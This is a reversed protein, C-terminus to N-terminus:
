TRSKEAEVKYARNPRPLKAGTDRLWASLRANLQEVKEAMKKSLNKTESIDDELNFLEFTNGEYRRILKWCGNRVISYPVIEDRYHPFHWFIADRGLKATGNSKLHDVLSLGDIQRDASPKVGALECITPLYDVSTVPERSIAGPKVVGPGHIILPVRIGGEYPYGKGARLPANNTFRSLGGNDSTFIIVTREAIGADELASMVRGVAEDVSQIMAAYEASKQGYRPKMRYISTIEEKAQIPTHVAYHAMYLFFPKDSHEKIFAAAEDAERDTLYEGKRRPKLTPIGRKNKRKRYPDFYSPPMGFHCGAINFDFGQKQPYWADHGLHWKGIHCCTYGATKLIEAITVEKLEMWYPNPPCLLKRKSNGVYETPGKENPDTWNGKFDLWHIWDTVGVRAPYRGTMVAARTPSCVACAAYADTFRMGGAALKDINPTEYFRSGYCGADMWGMDDILFFVFNLKKASSNNTRGCGPLAMAAAGVGITKLFDRRNMFSTWNREDMDIKKRSRM